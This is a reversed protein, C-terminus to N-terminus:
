RNFHVTIFNTNVHLSIGAVMDTHRSRLPLPAATAQQREVSRWPAAARHRPTQHPGRCGPRLQM